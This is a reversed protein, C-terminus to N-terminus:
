DSGRKKYGGEKNVYTKLRHCNACLTQLNKIDNNNHNGDIHDVDLQVSHIPIFGCHECYNKKHKTYKPQHNRNSKPGKKACKDSCYVQHIRKKQTFSVGCRKCSLTQFSLPQGKKIRYKTTPTM